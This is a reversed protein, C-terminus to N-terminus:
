KLWEVVGLEMKRYRLTEPMGFVKLLTTAAATAGPVERSATM